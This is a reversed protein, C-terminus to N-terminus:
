SFLSLAACGTARRKELRQSLRLLSVSGETAVLVKVFNGSM